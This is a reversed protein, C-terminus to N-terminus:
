CEEGLFNIVAPISQSCFEKWEKILGKVKREFPSPSFLLFWGTGLGLCSLLEVDLLVTKTLKIHFTWLLTLPFILESGMRCEPLVSWSCIWIAISFLILYFYFTHAIKTTRSYLSCKWARFDYLWCCYCFFDLLHQCKFSVQLISLYCKPPYLFSLFQHNLHPHCYLHLCPPLVICHTPVMSLKGTHGFGPCFLLCPPWFELSQM